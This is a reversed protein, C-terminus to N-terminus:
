HKQIELMLRAKYKPWTLKKVDTVSKWGHERFLARQKPGPGDTRGQVWITYETPNGIQVLLTNGFKLPGRVTWHRGLTGRRGYDSWKPPYRMLQSVADLAFLRLIVGLRPELNRTGAFPDRKPIIARM